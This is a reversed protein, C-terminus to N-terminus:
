NLFRTNQKAFSDSGEGHPFMVVKVNMGQELILDIGGSPHVFELRMGGTFAGYHEQEFRNVLRIQELTL